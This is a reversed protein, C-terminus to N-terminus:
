KKTELNCQASIATDLLGIKLRLILDVNAIMILCERKLLNKNIIFVLYINLHIIVDCSFAKFFNTGSYLSM